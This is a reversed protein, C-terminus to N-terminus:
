SFDIVDQKYRFIIKSREHYDLKTLEEMKKLDVSSEVSKRVRIDYDNFNITDEKKRKHIFSLSTDENNIINSLLISFIIHNKRNHTLNM